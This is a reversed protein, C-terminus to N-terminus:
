KSLEVQIAAFVELAVSVTPSPNVDLGLHVILEQLTSAMLNLQTDRDAISGTIAIEKNASEKSKTTSVLTATQPKVLFSASGDINKSRERPNNIYEVASM